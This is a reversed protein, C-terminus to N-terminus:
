CIYFTSCSRLVCVSRNVLISVDAMRPVGTGLAAAREREGKGDGDMAGKCAKTRGKGRGQLKM